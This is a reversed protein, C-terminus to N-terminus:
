ENKLFKRADHIADDVGALNDNFDGNCAWANIIWQLHKKSEDRERIINELVQISKQSSGIFSVLVRNAFAQLNGSDLIYGGTELDPNGFIDKIIADVIWYTHNSM